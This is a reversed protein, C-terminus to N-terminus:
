PLLLYIEEHTENLEALNLCVFSWSDVVETSSPSSHYCEDKPRKVGLLYGQGGSLEVTMLYGM